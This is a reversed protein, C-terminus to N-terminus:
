DKEVLRALATEIETLSDWGRVLGDHPTHSGRVWGLGSKILGSAQLVEVPADYPKDGIFWVNEREENSTRAQLMNFSTLKPKEGGAEESAIVLDFTGELGLYVLKRLQIQLTLDTILAVSIDHYRLTALLERAGPNLEMASIYVRWFESELNLALQPRAGFGLQTLMEHIYLLRSHSAATGETRSKVTERATTFENAIEAVPIGTEASALDFLAEKAKRNCPAYDYLTDDLDFVVMTPVGKPQAANM